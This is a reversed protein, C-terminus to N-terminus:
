SKTSRPSVCANAGSTMSPSHEAYLVHRERKETRPERNTNMNRNPAAMEPPGQNTRSDRSEHQGTRGRRLGNSESRESLAPGNSESRESLAPGNSESRESLAPGNSESRESLALLRRSSTFGDIRRECGADGVRRRQPLTDFGSQRARLLQQVLQERDRPGPRDCVRELREVLQAFLDLCGAANGSQHGGHVRILRHALGAVLELPFGIGEFGLERKAGIHEAGELAEAEVSEVGFRAVVHFARYAIQAPQADITWLGRARTQFPQAVLQRHQHGLVQAVDALAAAPEGHRAM